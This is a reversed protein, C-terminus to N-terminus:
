NDYLQPKETNSSVQGNFFIIKSQLIIANCRQTTEARRCHLDAMLIRIYGRGRSDGEGDGTGGQLDDCLELSLERDEVAAEWRNDTEGKTICREIRGVREKRQQAWLDM